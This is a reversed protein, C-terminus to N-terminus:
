DTFVALGLYCSHAVNICCANIVLIMPLFLQPVNQSILTLHPLNEGNKSEKEKEYRIATLLRKLSVTREGQEEFPIILHPM